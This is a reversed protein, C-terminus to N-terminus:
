MIVSLPGTYRVALWTLWQLPNNHNNNPKAFVNTLNDNFRFICLILYRPGLGRLHFLNDKINNM